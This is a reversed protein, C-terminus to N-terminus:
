TDAASLRGTMSRWTLPLSLVPPPSQQQQQQQQQQQANSSDNFHLSLRPTCTSGGDSAFGAYRGGNMGGKGRELPSCCSGGEQEPLVGGGEAGMYGRKRM